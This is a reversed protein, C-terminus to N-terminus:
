SMTENLQIMGTIARTPVFKPVHFGFATLTRMAQFFVTCGTDTGTWMGTQIPVIDTPQVITTSTALHVKTTGQTGLVVVRIKFFPAASAFVPVNDVRGITMTNQIAIAGLSEHVTPMKIFADTFVVGELETYPFL